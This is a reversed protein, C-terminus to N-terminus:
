LDIIEDKGVFDRKMPELVEQALRATITPANMFRCGIRGLSSGAPTKTGSVVGPGPGAGTRPALGSGGPASGGRPFGGASESRRGGSHPGRLAPAIGSTWLVLGGEIAASGPNRGLVAAVGRGASAASGGLSGCQQAPTRFPAAGASASLG